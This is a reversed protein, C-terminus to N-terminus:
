AANQFVTTIDVTQGVKVFNFVIFQSNPTERVALSFVFQKLAKATANNNDSDCKLLYADLVGSAKIPDLILKAKQLALRQHTTDNLKTTQFTLVQDVINQMIFNFMRRAGIFSDSAIVAPNKGTKDSSILAGYVPHFVRANIGATDLSQLTTEDPDFVFYNIGGGLQGGHGNEDVWSPSLGNFVNNMATYKTGHRGVLNSFFTKGSMSDTVNAWNFAFHINANDISFGTKTTIATPGDQTQPFVWIFDAYKHNYKSLTDFKAPLLTADSTPDMFINTPYRRAQTWNDWSASVDAVVAATKSGGGFSTATTVSTMTTPSAIANVYITLLDDQAFVTAPTIDANYDGRVTPDLSFKYTKYLEYSLGRLIYVLITFIKTTQSYSGAFQLFPTLSPFKCVITFYDTAVPTVAYPTFTPDALNAMTPGTGAALATLGTTSAKFGDVKDTTIATGCLWLPAKRNYEVADWVQANTAGIDGFMDLIRQTQGISFFVPTKPGRPSVVVMAGTIGVALTVSQSRDIENIQFRWSDAM